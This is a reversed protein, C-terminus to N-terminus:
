LWSFDSGVEEEFKKKAHLNYTIVLIVMDDIM